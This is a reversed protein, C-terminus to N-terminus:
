DKILHKYNRVVDHREMNGFYDIPDGIEFLLKIYDRSQVEWYEIYRLLDEPKGFYEPDLMRDDYEVLMKNYQGIAKIAELSLGNVIM